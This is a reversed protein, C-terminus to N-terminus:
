SQCYQLGHATAAAAAPSTSNCTSSRLSCCNPAAASTQQWQQKSPNKLVELEIIHELKNTVIEQLFPFLLFM